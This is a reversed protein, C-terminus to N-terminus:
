CSLCNHNNKAGLSELLQITEPFPQVRQQPGNAMDVTTQGRRSVVTVDAGHDVLFMITENDGRAAAHHLASYGDDDRVDPDVGLEEVLYRVAPLWGDPVHRHQQGIRSTGYGVGAAAHLPHVAKGGPPVPPLGSPDEEDEEEENRARYRSFRRSPKPKITWIDPDAGYAVLVKMAEVDQAYAARWFPTAGIFDVGMRGANYATYWVHEDTRANPDAGAELLAEMLELYSADQQKQATPQPYWTRLHWENNLVAFLPGVGDESALDPDAGRELLEMALDFNGNIIAMLLPTTRDGVTRVDIDIGTDLLM